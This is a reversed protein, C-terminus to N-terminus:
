EVESSSAEQIGEASNDVFAPDPEATVVVEELV